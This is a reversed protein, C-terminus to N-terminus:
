RIKTRKQHLNKGCFKMIKDEQSNNGNKTKRISNAPQIICDTSENVNNRAYEDYNNDPYKITFTFFTRIGQEQYFWVPFQELDQKYYRNMRDM